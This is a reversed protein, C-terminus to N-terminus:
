FEVTMHKETQHLSFIHVTRIFISRFIDYRKCLSLTDDSMVVIHEKHHKTKTIIIEGTDFNIKKRELERGENPRLGCTYILRFVVPLVFYKLPDSKTESTKDIAAFLRKLETDNFVHPNFAKKSPTFNEPFIYATGGISNIYSRFYRIISARTKLSNASETARKEMWKLVIEKTLCEENPFSLLLFRDLHLLHQQYAQRSYGLTERFQLIEEM